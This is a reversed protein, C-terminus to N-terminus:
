VLLKWPELIIKDNQSFYQKINGTYDFNVKFEDGLDYLNYGMEVM